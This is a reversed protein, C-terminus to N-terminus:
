HHAAPAYKRAPLRSSFGRPAPLRQSLQKGVIIVPTSIVSEKGDASAWRQFVQPDELCEILRQVPLDQGSSKAANDRLVPLPRDPHRGRIRRIEEIIPAGPDLVLITDANMGVRQESIHSGASIGLSDAGDVDDLTSDIGEDGSAHLEVFVSIYGCTNSLLCLCLHLAAIYKPM